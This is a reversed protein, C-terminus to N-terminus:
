GGSAKRILGAKERQREGSTVGLVASQRLYAIRQAATMGKWAEALAPDAASTYVYATSM